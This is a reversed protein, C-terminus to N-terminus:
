VQMANVFENKEIFEAGAPTVINEGDMVAPIEKRELKSATIAAYIDAILVESEARIDVPIEIIGEGIPLKGAKAAEKNVFPELFVHNIRKEAGHKWKINGIRWYNVTVGTELTKEHFLAM